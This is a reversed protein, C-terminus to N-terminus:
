VLPLEKTDERCTPACTEQESASLAFELMADETHM